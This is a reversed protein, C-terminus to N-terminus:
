HRTKRKAESSQLRGEDSPNKGPKTPAHNSALPRRTNERWHRIDIEYPGNPQNFDGFEALYNELRRLKQTSELEGPHMSGIGRGWLIKSGGIAVLEFQVDEPPVDSGDAGAVSIAQLKLSKWQSGLFDALRVATQLTPDKWAVGPTGTPKSAINRIIPLQGLEGAPFDGLPLLVANADVPFRTDSVQVVAVPRRYELEVTIAAPFSKRVRVVRAVWPHKSFAEGVQSALNEDLISLDHPLNSLKEVQELLNGPVYREPAPAIQIQGFRLSYEARKALSPLRQVAYPWLAFLGAVLSLRFLMSPRFLWAILPSDAPDVSPKPAAVPKAVRAM